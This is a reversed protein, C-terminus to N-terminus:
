KRIWGEGSESDNVLYFEGFNGLIDVSTGPALVAKRAASVRPQDLLALEGPLQYQRLPKTVQRVSESSIYGTLGDPLSVRYMKSSAAEVLMTTQLPLESLTSARDPSSYLKTAAKASRVKANLSVLSAQVEDPKKATRNVFPLPDVAGGFTYIGFHLHPPTTRANGTNGMLGLTDGTKVQQGDVVLQTDLHAYYLRYDKGSPRLWVVKGGLRNENVRSVVGEAAAVVPTRFAAFLDIGEHKRSGADRGDGWFSKIHNSGPAKIPYALSPGNTITLTYEGSRLLEPQLRLLYFGADDVDYTLSSSSTDAFSLLDHQGGSVGSFLDMYIDFDEAPKKNLTITLKEGKKAEFRFAAAQVRESAFYGTEKYPVSVQIAKRLSSDAVSLWARGMATRDFGADKLRQAYVQHPSRKKFLGGAGPGACGAMLGCILVIATWRLLSFTKLSM